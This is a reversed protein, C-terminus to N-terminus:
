VDRSKQLKNIMDSIEKRLKIYLGNREFINIIEDTVNNNKKLLDKIYLLEKLQQIEERFCNNIKEQVNGQNDFEIPLYGNNRYLSWYNKVKEENLSGTKCDTLFIEFNEDSGFIAKYFPEPSVINFDPHSSYSKRIFKKFYKEPTKEIESKMLDLAESRLSIKQTVPDIEKQCNYFLVFGSKSLKDKTNIFYNLQIDSLDQTSILLNNADISDKKVSQIFTSLAPSIFEANSTTSLFNYIIEYENLGVQHRLKIVLNDKVLISLLFNDMDLYPVPKSNFDIHNFLNLTAQLHENDICYLKNLHMTVAQSVENKLPRLKSFSLIDTIIKYVRTYHIYNKKNREIDLPIQNLIDIILTEFESPYKNKYLNCVCDNFDTGNKNELSMFDSITLIRDDLRYMFYKYFSRLHHMSCQRQSHSFLYYLIGYVTEVEQDGNLIKNIIIQKADNKLSLFGSNLELLLLPTNCLCFYVKSYRYQLLELYFLDQFEIENEAGQEKYTKSLLFFLNHFRIVDRVTHLIKPVLMCDVIDNTYDDSRYYIVDHIRMDEESIGWVTHITKSIRTQLENCIIREESKPLVIETNFFKELYLEPNNIGNTRLIDCVYERDYAVIFQIFPFNATNRILRLVEKIEDANLRDVDDIFVITKHKSQELSDKIDKYINPHRSFEKLISKSVVKLPKASDTELLLDIYEKIASSIDPIYLKLENCLLTFFSRTIANATDCKWPEFEIVSVYPNECYQHKLKNMFTTKGSGWAGIISFAFSSEKYFCTVLTKYTTIYLNNRKYSDETNYVKEIELDPVEQINKIKHSYWYRYILIIECLLPLIILVNAWVMNIGKFVLRSYDWKDSFFCILYVIAFFLFSFLRNKNIREAYFYEIGYYWLIFLSYVSITWWENNIFQSMIPNVWLTNVCGEWFDDYIVFSILLTTIFLINWLNSNISRFFKRSKM